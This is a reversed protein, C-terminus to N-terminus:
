LIIGSKLIEEIEEIEDLTANSLGEPFVEGAITYGSLNKCYAEDASPIGHYKAYEESAAPRPRTIILYCQQPAYFGSTAQASGGKDIHVQAATIANATTEAIYSAGESVTGGISARRTSRRKKAMGSVVAGAGLSVAGSVAGLGMSLMNKAIQAGQGGGIPVDAGISGERMLIIKNTSESYGSTVYATCKGSFYDVVYEVSITKNMVANTDLQVFGIYPLYLEIKTYPAYDLFNHFHLPITYSGLNLPPSPVPNLSFGEVDTQVVNILIETDGLSASPHHNKVDFPYIRLSVINEVPTNFLLQINDIFSSSQLYRVLENVQSLTMAYMVNFNNFGSCVGSPTTLGNAM